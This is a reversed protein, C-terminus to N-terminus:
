AKIEEGTLSSLLTAAMGAERLRGLIDQVHRADRTEIVVDLEAMKLPVDRFVRQHYVEVINGGAEGITNAVRGLVGPQDSIEVRIQVLRGARVLGRMLISSLLRSDINGGSIVIGVRKGAFRARDAMVAALGAAGAGEVVSKEIELMLLVAAELAAEGVLRIESVKSRVVQRTLKGPRKVAIGEAITVGGARPKEGRLVQHMAPYLEAEVGIVDIGPKLAKAATAIGSILGGGGIPVVLTDLAPDDALMELGITGQGAVILPDDYPHVFTLGKAARITEAHDTAESLDAGFLEVKAGYRETQIVKTFPTAKPMVIVAPVGLREAHYAVGQAHNGASVAIVGAKREAPTLSALKNVAGREKFSATYQLNEFKLVVTCGCIESLTRSVAQPTREVAGAITAAARRVDAIDPLATM